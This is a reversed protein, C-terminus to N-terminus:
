PQEFQRAKYNVIRSIYDQGVKFSDALEKQRYKGSKYLSRVKKIATFKLKCMGNNEGSRNYGRGKQSKDIANDKHTGLFLHSPNVCPPNDCKHCVLMGSPIKGFTIEWAFRHSVKIKMEFRFRGYGDKNKGVKWLWCSDTKDVKDWFDKVTNKIQPM